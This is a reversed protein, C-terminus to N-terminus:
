GLSYPPTFEYRAMLPVHGWVFVVIAMVNTGCYEGPLVASTHKKKCSKCYRRIVSWQM